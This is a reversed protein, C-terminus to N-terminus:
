LKEIIEPNAKAKLAWVFFLEITREDSIKNEKPNHSLADPVVNMWGPKHNIQFDTWIGTIAFSMQSFM